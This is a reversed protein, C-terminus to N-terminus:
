HSRSPSDPLLARRICTEWAARNGPQRLWDRAAVAGLSSGSVASPLCVGWRIFGAEVLLAHAVDGVTSAPLGPGFSIGHVLRRDRIGEVLCARYQQPHAAIRDWYPDAGFQGAKQPAARIKLLDDCGGVGMRLAAERFQTQSPYFPPPPPKSPFSSHAKAGAASAQGALIVSALLVIAFTKEM